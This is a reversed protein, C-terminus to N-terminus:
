NAVNDEKFHRRLQFSMENSVDNSFKNPKFTMEFLNLRQQTQFTM